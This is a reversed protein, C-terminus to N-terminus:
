VNELLVDVVAGNVEAAFNGVMHHPCDGTLKIKDTIYALM